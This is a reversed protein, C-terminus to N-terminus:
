RQEWWSMAGLRTPVRMPMVLVKPESMPTTDGAMVPAMMLSFTLLSLSFPLSLRFSSYSLTTSINIYDLKMLDHWFM